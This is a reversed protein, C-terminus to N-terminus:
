WKWFFDKGVYYFYSFQFILFFLFIAYNFVRVMAEAAGVVMAAEGVMVVVGMVEMDVASDWKERKLCNESNEWFLVITFQSSELGLALDFFFLWVHSGILVSCKVQHFVLLGIVDYRKAWNGVCKVYLIFSLSFRSYHNTGKSNENKEFFFSLFTIVYYISFFIWYHPLM